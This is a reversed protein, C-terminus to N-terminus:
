FMGNFLMFTKKTRETKLFFSHIIFVSESDVFKSFIDDRRRNYLLLINNLFTFQTDM